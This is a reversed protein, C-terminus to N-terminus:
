TRRNSHTTSHNDSAATLQHLADEVNKGVEDTARVEQFVCKRVCLRVAWDIRARRM